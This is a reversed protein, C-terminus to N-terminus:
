VLNATSVDCVATPSDEKEGDNEGSLYLELCPHTHYVEDTLTNRTYYKDTIPQGCVVCIM